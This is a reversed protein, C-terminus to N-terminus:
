MAFRVSAKIWGVSASTALSEFLVALGNASMLVYTLPELGVLNTTPRWGDM